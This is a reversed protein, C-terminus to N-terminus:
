RKGKHVGLLRIRALLGLDGKSNAVIGVCSATYRMDGHLVFVSVSDCLVLAIVVTVYTIFLSCRNAERKVVVLVPLVRGFWLVDRNDHLFIIAYTKSSNYGSTLAHLPGLSAVYSVGAARLLVIALVSYAVGILGDPIYPEVRIM